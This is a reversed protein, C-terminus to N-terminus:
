RRGDPQIDSRLMGLRWGVGLADSEVRFSIQRARVRLTQLGTNPAVTIYAGPQKAAQADDRQLVTLGVTQSQGVGRFEVDPILRQLLAFHEGGNLDLDSSEIYAPLPNGNADNGYEHYYLLSESRDAAIPYSGRGMDIWATRELTGIAWVQTNYNYTVYSDNEMSNASPYFWTVEAFAHNHGAYVKYAQTYNLNSFVYDKVTCPLEQVQGSYSYFIGRDMFLVMGGINVMANPGLISLGEAMSDFGFIYPTGIYKMSWLGLDTWILIEQTTRMAAIIYSGASLRQSGASNTRLPAWTYADEANSWRVLLLDASVVGTEPWDCGMAILHRDNPSVVIQRAVNPCQDPTFVDGGVTIAQNLNVARAGLGLGEHWYYIGGGRINGVLDEGFNDIDWIRLQNVTPNAPNLQTQDFVVGWGTPPTVGTGGWPPIGWGSGVVADDLGSAILFTAQVAPGGGAQGPTVFPAPMAIQVDGGDIVATIEFQQNLVAPTYVDVGTVAGSFIVYDGVSAAHGPIAVQVINPAFATVFPNAPLAITPNITRLPTVDYYDESWLIYLHSSTGLAVYRETEVTAWQHLHRCSGAFPQPTVALWGGIKEPYGARFRVKDCDYWGGTNAYDTSERVIGARFQIPSLAV